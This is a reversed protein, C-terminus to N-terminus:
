LGRVCAEKVLPACSTRLAVAEERGQQSLETDVLNVLLELAPVATIPLLDRIKNGNNGRFPLHSSIMRKLMQPEGSSGWTRCPDHRLLNPNQPICM